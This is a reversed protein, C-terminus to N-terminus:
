EAADRRVADALYTLGLEDYIDAARALRTRAQGYDVPHSDAGYRLATRGSAALNHARRVRSGIKKSPAIAPEHEQLKARLARAFRKMGAQDTTYALVEHGDLLAALRGVVSYTRMNWDASGMLQAVQDYHGIFVWRSGSGGVLENIEWLLHETPESVDVLQVATVKIFARVTERWIRDDVTLVALKPAFVQGCVATFVAAAGGIQEPTRLESRQLEKANKM